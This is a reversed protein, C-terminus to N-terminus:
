ADFGRLLAGGRRMELPAPFLRSRPALPDLRGRCTHYFSRNMDNAGLGVGEAGEDVGDAEEGSEGEDSTAERV